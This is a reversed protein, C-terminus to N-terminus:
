KKKFDAELLKSWTYKGVIGDVDLGYVEQFAKVQETLLSGFRDTVFHIGWGRAKLIACLVEVDAGNMGECITRPPWYETIPIKEWGPSPVSPTEAVPQEDTDGSTGKFQKYFIQAASYRDAVNPVAPNEYEKCFADTADYLNSNMVAKFSRPYMGSKLESWMYECQMAEDGVSVGKSRAFQLLARKRTPYTWQCLGFGYAKGNDREFDYGTNSDVLATYAEDTLPCRKEVINSKCLSECQMNGMIAAVGIDPIGFSKLKNWITRTSISDGGSVM